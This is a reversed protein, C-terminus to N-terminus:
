NRQKQPLSNSNHVSKNSSTIEEKISFVNRDFVDNKNLRKTKKVFVHKILVIYFLYNQQYEDIEMM